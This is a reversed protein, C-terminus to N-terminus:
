WRELADLDDQMAPRLAPALALAADFAARAQTSRGRRLHIQGLHWHAEARHPRPEAPPAALYAELHQQGSELNEGTEAALKGFEFTLEPETPDALLGRSLARRVAALNEEQRYYAAESKAAFIPDLAWMRSELPRAKDPDGGTIAPANRYFGIMGALAPLYEPDLEYAREMAERARGGIRMRSFVSVEEMRARYTTALFHHMEASEPMLKVAREAFEVADKTEDDELALRSRWQWGLAAEAGGRDVWADAMEAVQDFDEADWAAQIAAQDVAGLGPPLSTILALVWFRKAYVLMHTVAVVEGAFPLQRHRSHRWLTNM